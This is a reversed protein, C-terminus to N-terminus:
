PERRLMDSASFWALRTFTMSCYVKQGSENRLVTKEPSERRPDARRDAFEVAAADAMRADKGVTGIVAAVM